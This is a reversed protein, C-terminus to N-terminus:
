RKGVITDRYFGLFAPTDVGVCVNVPPRNDWDSAWRSAAKPGCSPRAARLATPLSACRAASSRSCKPICRMPWPARITCRCLREQDAELVHLLQRLLAVRGVPVARRGRRRAALDKLYDDTMVSELTVDLGVITMPWDAGFVIDAAVPDGIINAEAVPTVNGRHGNRGFAGGMVM